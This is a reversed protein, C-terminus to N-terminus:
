EQSSPAVWTSGVGVESAQIYHLGKAGALAQAGASNTEILGNAATTFEPIEKGNAAPDQDIAGDSDFDGNGNINRIDVWSEDEVDGSAYSDSFGFNNSFFSETHNILDCDYEFSHDSGSADFPLFLGQTTASDNLGNAILNGDFDIVFFNKTLAYLTPNIAPTLEDCDGVGARSGVETSFVIPQISNLVTNKSVTLTLDGTGDLIAQNGSNPVGGDAQSFPNPTFVIGGAEKNESRIGAIYNNSVVHGLPTILVGSPRDNTNEITTTRIIINDTVTNFGGDELSIGGNADVITNGHITAGSTQVRMLRRGTGFNEILNYQITFNAMDAADSGTTSGVNFLLLSSNGFNPNVSDSFRNYQILHDSSSSALKIVSGNEANERGSFTNREILAGAGKLMLWHYTSQNLAVEDGDMTNNSFVFNDGESYIIAQEETECFSGAKTDIDNFTLETITAGDVADAIHICTEGTIVPTEGEVSRLTVASTLLIADMDSYTNTNLGVVAGDSLGSNVTDLLAASDAVVATYVLTDLADTVTDTFSDNDTYSASVSIIGGANSTPTFTKTNSDAVAVGDAFWTYVVNAEEVGNNDTIEATLVGSALYPATGMIEITGAQDVAVNTVPITPASINEEAFGNDDVYTVQVTIVSGVLSADVVYTSETAGDIVVDDAFWQYSVDGTAGDTDEITASLTNGVTPTGEIAVTGESNVRTVTATAASTATEDFGRDDVFTVTVTIISGFFAESLELTSTVEGEILVGDAFWAYSINASEIGNADTVAATLTSGVLADGSLTVSSAFAIAAVDATPESIHSENVGGDDVYLAQVAIPLGIQDDTLTFSSGAAGSLVDTIANGDAYWIYQISESIGDEDTVTATLTEGSLPTGALSISGLTNPNNDSEVNCGALAAAIACLAFTKLKMTVIREELVFTIDHFPSFGMRPM